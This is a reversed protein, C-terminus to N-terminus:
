EVVIEDTFIWAKYPHGAHWPPCVKINEAEVKLYRTQVPEFEATFSHIFPGDKELPEMSEVISINKFNVGDDSVSVKMQTPLFIWSLIVQLFDASVKKVKTSEQLNLIVEMNEGEFGIWNFHYDEGGRLGDTLTKEGNAPYKPSPEIIYKVPKFLGSPNWMTKSLLNKYSSRYTDVDLQKENIFVDGIKKCGSSFEDLLTTIKPNAYYNGTKDKIILGSDGEGIVKAQELMAYKLPHRAAKVREFYENEEQVAREAEDFIRNYKKLLEPSLYDKISIVPSGYILLQAKSKILEETMLDIYARIHKWAKGYYGNLFDNMVADINISPNWLLKAILYTRLENFETGIRKGAGQEFIM